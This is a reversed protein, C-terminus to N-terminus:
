EFEGSILERWSWNRGPMVRAIVCLGIRTMHREVKRTSSGYKTFCPFGWADKSDYVNKASDTLSRSIIGPIIWRYIKM